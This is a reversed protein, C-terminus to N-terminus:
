TRPLNPPGRAPIRRLILDSSLPEIPLPNLAQNHMVPDSYDAPEAAYSVPNSLNVALEPQFQTKRGLVPGHSKSMGAYIASHVRQFNGNGQNLWVAVPKLSTASVIVLDDIRDNNVDETQLSLGAIEGTLYATFTLRPRGTTFHISVKYFNGCQRITALEPIHDGDLDIAFRTRLVSTRDTSARHNAFASGAFFLILSLAVASLFINPNRQLYKKLLM